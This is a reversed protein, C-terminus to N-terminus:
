ARLEFSFLYEVGDEIWEGIYSQGLKTWIAVVKPTEGRASNRGKFYYDILKGVIVYDPRPDDPNQIDIVMENDRLLVTATETDARDLNVFQIEINEFRKIKLERPKTM